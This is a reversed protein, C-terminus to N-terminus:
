LKLIYYDFYVFKNKDIEKEEWEDIMKDPIAKDTRSFAAKKAVERKLEIFALRKIKRNKNM